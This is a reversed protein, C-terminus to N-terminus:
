ALEGQVPGEMGLPVGLAVLQVVLGPACQGEKAPAIARAPRDFSEALSAVSVAMSDM